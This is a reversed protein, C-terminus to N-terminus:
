PTTKLDAYAAELGAANAITQADAPFGSIQTGSISINGTVTNGPGGLGPNPSSASVWNNTFTLHGTNNSANANATAIAGFSAFVNKTITLYASGEDAYYGFYTGSLGSGTGNCYNETVSTASASLNYHCGGDNMELMGQHVNNGLVQNNKAITPNQYLPQYNYLNGQARTKYESNGGADNVGWGYGTNIGSYPFNYLENHSLVVNEAYTFMLASFERYDIAIDHILNNKVTINQDIMRTQAATLVSLAVDGGPHHAKAQIGGIVVAGGAIQAFVCGVVSISDAGLGVKSLHANDDNGIGLAVAGLGVFRDRLFAINKAASVQIAAPMQHWTPRTAEFVPYNSKPGVIFAGTQQNVYGDSSNPGLWSTHSFTLGLFALEHVPEDYTGSISLLVEVMPLEVDAKDMAQGALPKYYLLGAITDQYWEGAQDIFEYANEVYVPGQRFSSKIYDYGWTNEEWAPQVMLATGNSVSKVPSYRDTFSGVSHLEMRDAHAVSNLLSLASGTYTFGDKNVTIDNISFSQRARTALKGDVCLQRSAFTSPATAKWINKGSDSVVWGSVTQAGSLIPHAGAAAQWTITHGNGGSDEATFLLPAKLRYTGDALEVVLDGRMSKAAARVVTQASTISCPTSASCDSGTGTPSAYFRLGTTLTADTTAAVATGGAGGSGATGGAGASSGGTSGGTGSSGGRGAGGSETTGGVSSGGAVTNGVTGGAVRSTGGTTANTGGIGSVAAGVGSRETPGQAQSGGQCNTLLSAIGLLGVTTLIKM